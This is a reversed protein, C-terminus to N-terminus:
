ATKLSEFYAKVTDMTIPKREINLWIKVAEDKSSEGTTASVERCAKVCDNATHDIYAKRVEVEWIGTKIHVKRAPTCDCMPDLEWDYCVDMLENVAVFYGNRWMETRCKWTLAM